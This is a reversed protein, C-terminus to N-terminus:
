FDHSATNWLVACEAVGMADKLLPEVQEFDVFDSARLECAYLSWGREACEELWEAFVQLDGHDWWEIRCAPTASHSAQAVPAVRQSSTRISWDGCRHLLPRLRTVFTLWGALQGSITDGNTELNDM